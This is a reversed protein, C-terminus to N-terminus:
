GITVNLGFKQCCYFTKCTGFHHMDHIERVTLAPTTISFITESPDSLKLWKADVRTLADAKNEASKILHINLEMDYTDRLEKLLQLRRKVLMESLGCIKPKHSNTLVSTMWGYVTASDTLVDIKSFKWKLALNVGKIVSELEAINIHAGDDKKRLWSGDEIINGNEELTVGIGLSSADCWVKCSKGESICWKGGVPDHNKLKDFIDNLITMAHMGVKHDWNKGGCQRKAFSSAIRLWGGIPYHGILKGCISFFERRTLENDEVKPIENGRKWQLSGDKTKYLQLGLIRAQEINEPPKSVLGYTLLHEKVKHATVFNEDIIIDDIYNDTASAIEDDLSLIKRLIHTMIRPASSLGFGLRTLSYVKGKFNVVQYCWLSEDVHIQLYADKLDLLKANECTRRWKRIKDECIDSDGTFCKIYQNLYRYDLVPRIKKKSPQEVAMLPIVNKIEGAYPRLWGKEIWEEVKDNFQAEIECKVKYNPVFRKEQPPKSIWKWKVTWKEGDFNACFDEEDLITPDKLACVPLRENGFTIKDNTLTGGGLHNICDMRLILDVGNIMPDLVLCNLSIPRMGNVKLFMHVEGKSTSVAGSVVMVDTSKLLLPTNLKSFLSNSVVTRSSGSDILARAEIGSVKCM